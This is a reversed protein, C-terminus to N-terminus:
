RPPINAQPSVGSPPLGIPQNPVLYQVAVCAVACMPLRQPLSAGMLSRKSQDNDRLGFIHPLVARRLPGANVAFWLRGVIRVNDHWNSTKQHFNNERLIDVLVLGAIDALHGVAVRAVEQQRSAQGSRGRGLRELLKLRLALGLGLSARALQGLRLGQGLLDRARAQADHGFHPRCLPQVARDPCGVDGGLELLLVADLDVAVVDVQGIRDLAQAIVLHRDLDPVTQFRFQLYGHGLRFLCLKATAGAASSRSGGLLTSASCATMPLRSSSRSASTLTLPQSCGSSKKRSLWRKM